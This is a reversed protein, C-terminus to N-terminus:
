STPLGQHASSPAPSRRNDRTAEAIVHRVTNLRERHKDVAQKQYATEVAFWIGVLNTRKKCTIDRAATRIAEHKPADRLRPDVPPALPNRYDYGADAM